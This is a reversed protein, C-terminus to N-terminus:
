FPEQQLIITLIEGLEDTAAPVHKGTGKEAAVGGAVASGFQLLPVHSYFPWQLDSLFFKIGRGPYIKQGSFERIFSLHLLRKVIRLGASGIRTADERPGSKRSSFYKFSTAYLKQLLMTTARAVPKQGIWYGVVQAPEELVLALVVVM